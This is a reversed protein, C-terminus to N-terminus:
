ALIKKDRVFYYQSNVISWNLQYMKVLLFVLVVLLLM